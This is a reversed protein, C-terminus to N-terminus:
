NFIDDVLSEMDITQSDEKTENARIANVDVIKRISKTDNTKRGEEETIRKKELWRLYSDYKNVIVALDYNVQQIPDLEKGELEMKNHMKQLDPMKREWMDLLHNPPICRGMNKYTGDFISDFKMWLYTPIDSPHYNNVIFKFLSDKVILPKFHEVSSQRILEINKLANAWKDKNRKRSTPSSSEKCLNAFCDKHYTKKEYYILEGITSKNINLVEGCCGCKRQLDAM